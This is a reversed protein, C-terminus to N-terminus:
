RATETAAIHAQIRQLWLQADAAPVRAIFVFAGTQQRFLGMIVTIPSTGHTGAATLIMERETAEGVASIEGLGSVGLQQVAMVGLEQGIERDTGTEYGWLLTPTTAADPDAGPPAYIVTHAQSLPHRAMGEPPAQRLGLALTPDFTLTTDFRMGALLRDAEEVSPANAMIVALAGQARLPRAVLVGNAEQCVVGQPSEQCSRSAQLDALNSSVFSADNVLSPPAEVAAVFTACSPIVYITNGEALVAEDPLPVLVRSGEIHFPRWQSITEPRLDCRVESGSTANGNTNNTTGTQTAAGGGCGILFTLPWALAPLAIRAVHTRM